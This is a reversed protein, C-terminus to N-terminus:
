QCTRRAIPGAEAPGRLDRDIGATAVGTGALVLSEPRRRIVRDAYPTYSALDHMKEDSITVQAIGTPTVVTRGRIVPDYATSM